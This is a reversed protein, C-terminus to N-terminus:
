FCEEEEKLRKKIQKHSHQTKMKALSSERTASLLPEERTTLPSGMATVERQLAHARPILNLLQPEQARSCLSLLQPVQTQNPKGPLEPTFFGGATCFLLNLGLTQFIGQLLFEM